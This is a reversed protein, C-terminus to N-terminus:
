LIFEPFELTTGTELTAGFSLTLHRTGAEYDLAINTVGTVGPTEIIVKRFLVEIAALPVGKALVREFYPMGELVNLFWEGRFFRLRVLLHQRIADDDEVFALDGHEFVIDGTNDLKIDSM